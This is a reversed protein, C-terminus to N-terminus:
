RRERRRRLGLLGLLGVAVVGSAGDDGSADCRVFCGYAVPRTEVSDDDDGTGNCNPNEDLQGDCDNDRGDCLEPAGAFIAADEDDCDGDCSASGDGDEDLLNLAADTDDCDGDCGSVGDGDNDVQNVDPDSDDCDGLCPTWGDGDLDAPYRDPDNDDCDAECVMWGDLDADIEGPFGQGDCDNDKGDCVEEAGPYIDPDDNDCDDAACSGDGDVDDCPPPYFGLAEGGTPQRNGDCSFILAGSSRGIGIVAQKGDDHESGDFDLDQYHFEIHHDDAFLKIEFSVVGGGNFRRINFWEVLFVNANNPAVGAYIEGGASPDLDMWLPLISPAPVTTVPCTHTAELDETSGFTVGGNSHVRLANYEIGYFEFPFPLAVETSDDDDLVLLGATPALQYDYAPGGDNNDVWTYGFADPGGIAGFAPMAFGTLVALLSGFVLERGAPGKGVPAGYRRTM